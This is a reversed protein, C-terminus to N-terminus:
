FYPTREELCCACRGRISAVDAEPKRERERASGAKAKVVSRFQKEGFEAIEMLREQTAPDNQLMEFALVAPELELGGYDGLHCKAGPDPEGNPEFRFAVRVLRHAEDLAPAGLRNM